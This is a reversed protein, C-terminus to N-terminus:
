AETINTIVGHTNRRHTGLESYQYLVAEYADFGVVRQWMSGDRDMFSWDSERYVKIEKENLFWATKAPADVDSVIPIEGEDTTFALGTFGGGFDKTNTFRRQQVLLNFYARRVGPSTFIVTVNGGNNMQIRDSMEILMGESLAGGTTNMVSKWVGEVTPDVNYLTGTDRVIKTLGTWERNVNGTRVLIDGVATTFTAGSLTVSGPAGTTIATVTRNAAKVTPTANALTTGDILDVQEGDQLWQASEVTFTNVAAQAANARAVLGSGDQYVQRNLDKKVDRKLGQMELDLASMFANADKDVLEISQGSLRVGGYLYKLGVRAQATGQQGPTPLAELENRAGIGANRKTHIPFAVYKGGVNSTGESTKEIRKLTKVEDNLQLRLSGEYIEKTIASVTALTAPM